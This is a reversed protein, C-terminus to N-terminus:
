RDAALRATVWKAVAILSDEGAYPGILQLAVPMNNPGRHTPLAFSPAHLLNWFGIFAHDGTTELGVPAEGETAPTIIADFGAFAEALLGRCRAGQAIAERYQEFSWGLGKEIGKQLQPSLLDRHHTFEWLTARAREYSSIIDRAPTLEAFAPPLDLDIIQAGAASLRERADEMAAVTEPKAADWLHTRCFAIRPPSTSEPIPAYDRGVLVAMMLSADDISRSLTGLTDLSQAAPRVGHLNYLDYGPKFGVIGCYAAPRHVSGATQTGFAIPVHYDAVAAGSGSSSGGPTRTPDHPNCTPPPAMGAFEVTVTKGLVVAGAARIQAVCAADNLPRHGQYIPSGMGTPMDATAIIDKVGVPVGHLPGLSRAAADCRRAAGLALEPDVFAWAKLAPDRAAIRELCASVLAESTMSGAAIQAAAESASLHTLDTM